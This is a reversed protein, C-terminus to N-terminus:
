RVYGLARLRQVVFAEEDPPCPAPGFRNDSEVLTNLKQQLSELLEWQDAAVDNTEGPDARLDYLEAKGDCHRIFKHEPTRLSQVEAGRFQKIAKIDGAFLQDPSAEAYSAVTSIPKGRLAPVLSQGDLHSPWNEREIGWLNLLTAAIDVHRISHHIHPSSETLEGWRWMLPVHLVSDYLHQGHGRFGHQFLDEGHDATFIVGAEDYRGHKKLIDIFPQICNRDVKETIDRTYSEHAPLSEDLHYDHLDFYHLWCFVRQSGADGLFRDFADNLQEAFQYCGGRGSDIGEHIDRYYDFGRALGTDSNLIFTSPFGATVYGVRKAYEGLTPIERNCLQGLLLRVGTRFPYAGTLISAMAPTTFPAHSNAQTFVASEQALSNIAPTPGSDAGFAALHDPRLCDVSVLFVDRFM